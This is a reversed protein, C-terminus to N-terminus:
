ILIKRWFFNSVFTMLIETNHQKYASFNSINNSHKSGWACGIKYEFHMPKPIWVVTLGFLSKDTMVTHLFPKWLPAMAHM